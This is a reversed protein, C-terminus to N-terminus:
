IAGLAQTLDDILDKASELGCSFRILDPTVGGAKLEEDSRERLWVGAFIHGDMMVLLPHLGLAELCAAYLLTLDMCTGLRQEM